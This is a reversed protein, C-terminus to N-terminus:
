LYRELAITLQNYENLTQLYQMKLRYALEMGRVFEAFNIEEHKLQSQLTNIMITAQELDNEQMAVLENNLQHLQVLANDISRELAFRTQTLRNQEQELRIKEQKLQSYQSTQFIPIAIGATWGSFGDVGDIQQSFYGIHVSPFFGSLASQKRKMAIALSQEQQKLQLSGSLTDEEDRALQYITLTDLAPLYNGEQQMLTKLRNEVVILTNLERNLQNRASAFATTGMSKDLLTSEGYKYQANAVEAYSEFLDKQEKLLKLRQMRYVWEYYVQKVERAVERRTVETQLIAQKEELKVLQHQKIGQFLNGLDQEVRVAYDTMGSNIQGHEYTVSTPGLQWAEGKTAAVRQQELLANKVATHNQEARELAEELTLPNPEQQAQVSMPLGFGILLLVLTVVKSTKLTPPKTFLKYLIPLIIMTLMTATIVGGIVVTALPRQVEAGASTSIAMPLFGLIDTSATMLVPRLRTLAGQRVIEDVSTIGEEKLQNYYSILVIGNLVAVGFLAIFGVGASISFPMGRLWLAAIGGVASLPVASFILLAYKFSKFTFFLLIFILLLAIPVAILLRKKADKLNEFQGSYSLTYGPKLELNRQLVQDIEAVLSEVDRNRVNIGITVRRKTDDRSIQAPGEIYEVSALQCMPVMEGHMDRVYLKSLDIQSRAGENFRIAIDFKREGEFVVGAIKGSYATEVVNNLDEIQVGYQAILKRNYTIVAQPLGAVQEVMIDSAGPIDDILRAAHNAQAYLENLDEGFIKVGIDTKVGTMLENFRLQIPQTFDFSASPIVSLSAKMKDVLEERTEASEWEEKEKLIIMIDADEIAMPDTPVEATGIKSIVQEVEPFRELLIKEAKTATKISQTLSSGPPVTMQMALDGEGLTPIFEGGLYRFSVLSIIFVILTVTLILFKFRLAFELVPRYSWKLFDILRDSFNRKARIKKKLFLSAVVPVYTLSLFFAGLIAFIFTQAMPRFTKGEIGTLTLIPIFVILIIFVGFAASRYISITSEAVVKDMKEQSLDTLNYKRYLQYIISEVIIVAGDIVIGFDVAGLSMLNASVGFIHMMIFAFLLSLPIVSAVILGSRMNGLLLVLVFIVILAGEVLNTALTNTTSKVLEARDLYPEIYVGEPLTQQVQEIRDKVENIVASSNAGKLMLTIGGVAEGKGNKTMAGFRPAAGFKVEALDKVLVPQGQMRKVVIHELDETSEIIGEARIYYAHPGKEIYSGGTNENNRDISEYLESLSVDFQRLQGPDVSIEYQKLKGGFSSIEVIGPIGSLQRKVIWDQITRLETIDYKQEYGPELELTYQFVEGLGTTIPLMEPTGLGSPIESSASQIQENILQRADLIPVREDFVVTVVSLGYRSVSRIEQVNTINAFSIELPYTIFKEVEQPALSPAVTVVQVQNNTIDPVADVPIRQMSYIGFGILVLTLFAVIAKNNLSFRIIKEFM